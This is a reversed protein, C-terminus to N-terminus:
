ILYSSYPGGFPLFSGAIITTTIQKQIVCLIQLICMTSEMIYEQIIDCKLGAMSKM